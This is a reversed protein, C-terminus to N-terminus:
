KKLILTAYTKNPTVFVGNVRSFCKKVLPLALDLDHAFLKKFKIADFIKQQPNDILMTLVFVDKDDIGESVRQLLAERERESLYEWFGTCEVIASEGDGNLIDIGNKLIDRQMFQLSLGRNLKTNINILTREAKVNAKDSRDVNVVVMGEKGSQYIGEIPLLCSGGAISLIRDANTQNIAKALLDSVIVRRQLSGIAIDLNDLVERARNGVGIRYIVDMTGHSLGTSIGNAILNVLSTDTGAVKLLKFIRELKGDDEHIKELGELYKTNPHLPFEVASSTYVPTNDISDIKQYKLNRPFLQPEHLEISDVVPVEQLEKEGKIETNMEGEM